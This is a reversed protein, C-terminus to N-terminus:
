LEVRRIRRVFVFLSLLGLLPMLGATLFVPRYSFNEVVYGTAVMLVMNVVGEGAGTLGTLRALVRQSFLDTLLGIHTAANMSIGFTAVSILAIASAAGSAFPVLMSSSCLIVSIIFAAKRARDASYGRSMLYSSFGGGILNGLGAFLFPIGASQGIQEMTFGRESRLYEPLWYWYFHVVPGGLARILVAGWAQRVRMLTGLSISKEPKAPPASGVRASARDRYYMLWPIIWLLGLASPLIFTM